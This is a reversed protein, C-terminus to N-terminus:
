SGSKQEDEPKPCIPAFHSTNGRCRWTSRYTIGESKALPHYGVWQFPDLTSIVVREKGSDTDSIVLEFARYEAQVSFNWLILILLWRM